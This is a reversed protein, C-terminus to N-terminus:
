NSSKIPASLFIGIDSFSFIFSFYVPGSTLLYIEILIIKSYNVNILTNLFKVLIWPICFSKLTLKDEHGIELYVSHGLFTLM